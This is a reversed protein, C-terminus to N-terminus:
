EKADNIFVITHMQDLSSSVVIIYAGHPLDPLDFVHQGINESIKQNYYNRGNYDFINISLVANQSLSYVLQNGQISINLEKIEGLKASKIEKDTDSIETPVSNFQGITDTSVGLVSLTDKYARSVITGMAGVALFGNSDIVVDNLKVTIGIYEHWFSKGSQYFNISGWNGPPTGVFINGDFAYANNQVRMWISEYNNFFVNAIMSNSESSGLLYKGNEYSVFDVNMDAPFLNWESWVFLNPSISVRNNSTVVLYKDGDWLISRIDSSFESDLIAWSLGDDNSVLVKRDSIAIYKNEDDNYIVQLINISDAVDCAEWTLGDHSMYLSDGMVFFRNGAINIRKLKEDLFDITTFSSDPHTFFYLAKEALAVYGVSPLWEVALLDNNIQDNETQSGNHIKWMPPRDSYELEIIGKAGPLDSLSMTALAGRKGFLVPLEYSLLKDEVIAINSYPISIRRLSANNTRFFFSSEDYVGLISDNGIVTGNTLGFWEQMTNWTRGSDLSKYYTSESNCYYENLANRQIVTLKKIENEPVVIERLNMLADIQYFTNELSDNIILLEDEKCFLKLNSKAVPIPSDFQLKSWEEGSPSYLLSDISLFNSSSEGGLSWYYGNCHVKVEYEEPYLTSQGDDGNLTMFYTAYSSVYGTSTNEIVDQYGKGYFEIGNYAIPYFRAGGYDINNTFTKTSVDWIKDDGITRIFVKPDGIILSYIVDSDLDNTDCPLNCTIFQGLFVADGKIDKASKDFAISDLLEGSYNFNYIVRPYYTDGSSILKESYLLQLISDNLFIKIDNPYYQQFDFITDPTESLDRYIYYNEHDEIVVASDNISIGGGGGATQLHPWSYTNWNEYDDSEVIMNKNYAQLGGRVSWYIQNIEKPLYRIIQWQTLDQSSMLVKERSFTRDDLSGLVLWQQNIEDWSSSIIDYDGNIKYQIWNNEYGSFFIAGNTGTLLKGQGVAMSLIKETSQLDVFNRDGSKSLMLLGNRYGAFYWKGEHFLLPKDNSYMGYDLTWPTSEAFLATSVLLVLHLIKRRYNFVYM